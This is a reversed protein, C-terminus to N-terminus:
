QGARRGYAISIGIVSEDGWGITTPGHDWERIPGAAVSLSWGTDVAGHFEAVWRLGGPGCLTSYFSMAVAVM